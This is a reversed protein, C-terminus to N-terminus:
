KDEDEFCKSVLELMEEKTMGLRRYYDMERGLKAYAEDALRRAAPANERRAVFCGRGVMTYILGARELEEWAMKIPIVSVRLEKAVTRIPPLAMEPELAGSMIQAAVQDYLQKYIPPAESSQSITINM